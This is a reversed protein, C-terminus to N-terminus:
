FKGSSGSSGSSSVTTGGGSSGGGGSSSKEIRRRVETIYLFQDEKRSLQFGNKPIYQDATKAMVATKMQSRWILCIILSILLPVLIVIALKLPVPMRDEDYYYDDDYEGPYDAFDNHIDFPDGARAMELYQEANDLYLSFAEYYDNQGLQPLVYDDLLVTRGHDTFATNGYGYAIMAYDRDAMSLMLFVGSREEDYGFGYESYLQEAYAYADDGDMADVVMIAVDCAYTETIEAARENLEQREDETIVGAIDTVWDVDAALATVPMAFVLATCTLLVLWLKRM